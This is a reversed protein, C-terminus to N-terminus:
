RLPTEWDRDANYSQHVLENVRLDLSHDFWEPHEVRLIKVIDAGLKAHLNEELATSAIINSVGKLYNKDQNLMMIILFQSFLSVNEIFLSFLLVSEMYEKYSGSKGSIANDMYKQRAAIAPVKAVESFAENLGLQNLLEAYANAHRVESEGMTVGVEAIEPKPLRDSLKTWFMKVTVEIHSIALMARRVAEKENPSMNVHYDQIDSTVDFEDHTWYSQRIADVYKHLDPYEFPRYQQRPRFIDPMHSKRYTIYERAVDKDLDM